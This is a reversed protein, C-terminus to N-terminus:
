LCLIQRITVKGSFHATCNQTIDMAIKLRQLSYKGVSPLIPAGLEMAKSIDDTVVCVGTFAKLNHFTEGPRTDESIMIMRGGSLIGKFSETGGGRYGNLPRPTEQASILLGPKSGQTQLALDSFRGKDMRREIRRFGPAIDSADRLSFQTKGTLASREAEDTM